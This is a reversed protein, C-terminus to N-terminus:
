LILHDPQAIANLAGNDSDAMRNDQIFEAFITMLM